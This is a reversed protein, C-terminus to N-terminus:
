RVSTQVSPTQQCNPTITNLRGTKPAAHNAVGCCAVVPNPQSAQQKLPLTKGSVGLNSDASCANDSTRNLSHDFPTTGWSYDADLRLLELHVQAPSKGTMWSLRPDAKACCWVGYIKRWM